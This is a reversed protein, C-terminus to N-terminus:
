WHADGRASVSTAWWGAASSAAATKKSLGDLFVTLILSLRKRGIPHARAGHARALLGRPQQRRRCFIAQVDPEIRVRRQPLWRNAFILGLPKQTLVTLM